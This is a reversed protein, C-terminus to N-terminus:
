RSAARQDSDAAPLGELAGALEDAIRQPDGIAVADANVAIALRGAYTLAGISLPQGDTVPVLPHISTVQRGLLELEGPPGPLSSVILDFRMARYVLRTVAPRAPAPILSAGRALVSIAGANGFSMAASTRRAMEGILECTDDSGLPLQVPLPTIGNGAIRGRVDHRLRFPVLAKLTAPLEGRRRLESGVAVAAAALLADNSSGGCARAALRVRRADLEALGVTRRGDRGTQLGHRPGRRALARAARLLPRLAVRPGRASRTVSRPARVPAGDLLVGAVEIAALGDVLAHHAHGIVAWGSDLGDVLWIRWLPHARDLRRSLLEDTLRRLSRADGPAAVRAACVHRELSLDNVPRWDPGGLRRLAPALRAGFLPLRPLRAAVHERLEALRPPEGALRMVWGVQQPAARHDLDAFVRDLASLGDSTM